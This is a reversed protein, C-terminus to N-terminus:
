QLSVDNNIESGMFNTSKCALQGFLLFFYIDFDPWLGPLKSGNWLIFLSSRICFV